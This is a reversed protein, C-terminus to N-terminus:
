KGDKLGQGNLHIMQNILQIPRKFIGKKLSAHLLTENLKERGLSRKSNVKNISKAILVHM